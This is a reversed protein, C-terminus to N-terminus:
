GILPNGMFHPIFILLLVIISLVTVLLTAGSAIDKIKRVKVNYQFSITDVASELASNITEVILNLFIITIVIAWEIIHLQQWIGLGIVIAAFFLQLWISSEERIVTYLGKFSYAWKKRLKRIIEKM